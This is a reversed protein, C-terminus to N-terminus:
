RAFPLTLRRYDNAILTKRLLEQSDDEPQLIHIKMVNSKSICNLPLIPYEVIPQIFAKFLHTKIKPTLNRFRKLKTLETKAKNIRENLHQNFGTRTLKLGLMSISEAFQLNNNNIAVPAPATASISLIKFKNTSTKIKWLKEYRNIREIERKCRAALMNKSGHHYEVIQTIDDAFLVDTTGPGPPPIDSTYTIYLSPSLISGQPVGSKLEIM